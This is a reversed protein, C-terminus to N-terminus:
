IIYTLQLLYINNNNNNNNFYVLAKTMNKLKYPSIGMFIYNFCLGVDSHNLLM